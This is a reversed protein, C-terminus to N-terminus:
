RLIILIKLDNISLTNTGWSGFISVEQWCYHFLNEAIIADYDNFIFSIWNYTSVSGPTLEFEYKFLCDSLGYFLDGSNGLALFSVPSWILGPKLGMFVKPPYLALPINGKFSKSSV